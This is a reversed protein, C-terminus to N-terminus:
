VEIGVSTSGYITELNLVLTNKKGDLETSMATVSTIYPNVLLGDKIYQFLESARSGDNPSGIFPEIEIGYDDFYALYRYREVKLTHLVWVKIADNKEVIKHSGDINYIFQDREFDWAFEKFIPLDAHTIENKSPGIVFPNAM